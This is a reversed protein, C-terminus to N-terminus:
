FTYGVKIWFNRGNQQITKMTHDVSVPDACLTDFLNYAGAMLNLGRQEMSLILDMLAADGVEAGDRDLRRGLYRWQTGMFLMERYLPARLGAQILHRPSNALWQGTREDRTDQYVYSVQGKLLGPWNVELGVEVGDSTVRSVNYFQLSTDANVEQNILDKAHYRFGSVTLKFTSTLEQELSIEYTRVTEPKLDPNPLYISTGTNTAYYLEYVNPARFAEGYLLKITGTETPTFVLGARPSLHGGINSYRDHRLGGTFRLWPTIDWEDQGYLSGTTLTHNDDLYVTLPAEDYNKQRAELHHVVEGGLLFRHSATKHDYSAEGGIWQGRVKDRNITVPPYDYPYFGEFRYRDFYIRTQMHRDTDIPHNWKMEIFSREDVTTARNDNFLTGFSATPINKERWGLNALLSFEHFSAKLFLKGAREGDADRAWGDTGPPADFDAFYHDQGRSNLLSASVVLDVNNAYRKGFTVTGSRTQYSGGEEKVLLGDIDEGKKTIVNVTGFVANSGYLASGPGRIFEIKKILDMDVGFNAGLFFSGYINDNNTHGDILQLVRNGYDGLRAFGRVGIYDYNRDSYTYFGRVNNVVDTLNRHGYRRIDEDTVITISSPAEKLSQLHKAAAYVDEIEIFGLEETEREKGIAAMVSGTWLWILLFSFFM